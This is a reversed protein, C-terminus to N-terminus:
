GAFLSLVYVILMLGVLGGLLRMWCGLVHRRAETPDDTEHTGIVLATVFTLYILSVIHIIGYTHM